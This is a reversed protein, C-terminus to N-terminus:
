LAVAAFVVEELVDKDISARFFLRRLVHRM